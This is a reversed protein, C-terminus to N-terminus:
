QTRVTYWDVWQSGIPKGEDDFEHANIRAYSVAVINSGYREMQDPGIYHSILYKQEANAIIRARRWAHPASKTAYRTM